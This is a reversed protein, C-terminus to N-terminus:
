VPHGNKRSLGTMYDRLKIKNETTLTAVLAAFEALGKAKSRCNIIAPTTSRNALAM